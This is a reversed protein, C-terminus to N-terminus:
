WSFPIDSQTDVLAEMNDASGSISYYSYDVVEQETIAIDLM